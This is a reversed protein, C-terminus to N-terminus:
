WCCLCRICNIIIAIVLIAIIIGVLVTLWDQLRFCCSTNHQGCCKFYFIPNSAPCQGGIGPVPCGAPSERFRLVDLDRIEEVFDAEARDALVVTCVALALLGFFVSSSRM